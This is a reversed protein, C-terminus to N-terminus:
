RFGIGGLLSEVYAHGLRLLAVDDERAAQLHERDAAFDHPPGKSVVQERFRDLDYLATHFALQTKLDLPEPGRLNKLAIVDMLMDNFANYRILEQSSLWSRLTQTKKELHGKCHPEKLLAFHETM